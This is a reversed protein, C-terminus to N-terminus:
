APKELLKPPLLCNQNQKLVKAIKDTTGQIYPLFSKIRKDEQNKIRPKQAKEFARKIDKLKYGNEQLVRSLHALEEKLHETDSIRIARTALTNLIGVKQSPHHHSEAHLYRDTHTKKHLVQHSLSGDTKKTLLVNLFPLSNNEQIEMTFKIHDSRNNLHTLSKDLSERGHPWIINTDDM